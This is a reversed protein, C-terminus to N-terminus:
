AMCGMQPAIKMLKHWIRVFQTADREGLLEFMRTTHKLIEQHRQEALQKGQPTLDVLIRRRDDKDISRTILGKNELSNLAAAIRATSVDMAASIDSPQVSAGHSALYFLVFGEGRMSEDIRRQPGHRMNAYGNQLFQEALETFDM